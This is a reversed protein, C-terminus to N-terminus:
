RMFPVILFFAISGLIHTKIQEVFRTQLM